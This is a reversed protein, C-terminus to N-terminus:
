QFFYLIIAVALLIFMLVFSTNEELVVLFVQLFRNQLLNNKQLLAATDPKSAHRQDRKIHHLVKLQDVYVGSDKLFSELEISTM